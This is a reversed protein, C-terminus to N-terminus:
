WSRITNKFVKVVELIREIGGRVVRLLNQTEPLPNLCPWRRLAICPSYKHNQNDGQELGDEVQAAQGGGRAAWGQPGVM